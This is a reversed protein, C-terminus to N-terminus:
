LFRTVSHVPINKQSKRFEEQNPEDQFNKCQVTDNQGHVSKKHRTLSKSQIFFKEVHIM